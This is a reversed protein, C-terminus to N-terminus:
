GAAPRNPPGEPLERLMGRVRRTEGWAWDAYEETEHVQGTTDLGALHADAAPGRAFLELYDELCAMYEEARRRAEGGGRELEAEFRGRALDISQKKDQFM